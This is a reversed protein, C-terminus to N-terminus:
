AAHDDGAEIEFLKELDSVPTYWFAGLKVAPLEGNRFKRRVVQPSLGLLEAVDESRLLRTM